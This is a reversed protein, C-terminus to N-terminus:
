DIDFGFLIGFYIMVEHGYTVVQNQSQVYRDFTDLGYSASLFFRTPYSYYSFAELRLEIGIDRRMDAARIGYDSWANGADAYVSAYLKDFYLQFLRIDINQLIPFRYNVGVMAMENGGLSYYPYGKMGVLGGAYFDFFEDVTPGLISGGRVYLGVTHNRFFFPLYEKWQFEIRTFNVDKYVPQLGTSTIEYEGDGNFKNLERGARLRIKRGIPNIDQTRSPLIANVDLALSLNNAILYLDSSSGVLSPPDTEPNIFSGIISTYRSHAYRFEADVFQSFLPQRLSFDFETLNYEVDVPITSAPLNIVSETKRTLNYAEVTAVPELGIEYLLPIRGRYIFQLFLDRELLANLTAGAFIGTKDLVDNSFVYAGAKIMELGTAKPNYNDIRIVPVVSLSTFISKYPRSQLPSLSADDYGRLADWDFQPVATSRSALVPPNGPAGTGDHLTRIYNHDGAALVAPQELYHIKYGGSTYAAYAVAGASNVTPYFAGGLVNTIQETQRGAVDMRYINFIGTRDSSFYLASGDHSFRAARSDDDGTVLFELDAGDPRVWAIDRGDRISYDFVIRDGSPSWCPNYVQEGSAYLTIERYGTGDLNVVALNTSGDRNSVFAVQKGDPSVTPSYARRGTTLRREEEGQLDYEYIDFQLSWHPNDRTQRGYYLKTGDPSWAPATRVGPQVLTETKKVTDYVYLSSLGFYDGGKASTFALKTGDPSFVPYLNAFGM